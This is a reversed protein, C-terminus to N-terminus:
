MLIRGQSKRNTCGMTDGSEIEHTFFIPWFLFIHRWQTPHKFFMLKKGPVSWRYLWTHMNSLKLLVKSLVIV